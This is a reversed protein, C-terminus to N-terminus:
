GLPNHQMQAISSQHPPSINNNRSVGALTHDDARGTADAAHQTYQTSHIVPAMTGSRIAAQWWKGDIAANNGIKPKPHSLSRTGSENFTAWENGIRYGAFQSGIKLV